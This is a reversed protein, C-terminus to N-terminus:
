RQVNGGTEFTARQNASLTVKANACRKGYDITLQQPRFSGNDANPREFTAKAYPVAACESVQGYYEVWVGSSRDLWNWSGPVLIQGIFVEQGTSTDMIWAGWWEDEWPREACCLEWLRLRYIRGQTWNYRMRCSWGEGEGGFRECAAGSGPKADKANWISFIAMKGVWRGQMYGNTQLGMYGGAGNQFQFQHAWYYASSSGPDVDITLFVDFNYFGIQTNNWYRPLPPWDYWVYAMGGPTMQGAAWGFVLTVFVLVVSLGFLKGITKFNM